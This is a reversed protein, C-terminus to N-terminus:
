GVSQQFRRALELPVRVRADRERALAGDLLVLADPLVVSSAVRAAAKRVSWSPDDVAVQLIRASVAAPANACATVALERVAPEPDSVLRVLASIAEAFYHTLVALRMVGLSSVTPNPHRIGEVVAALDETRLVKTRAIRGFADILSELAAREESDTVVEGLHLLEM